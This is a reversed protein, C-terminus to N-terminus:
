IPRQMLVNGPQKYRCVLIDERMNSAIACGVENTRAWIVQTYHSVDRVDGTRSNDPFVGPKFHGKEAIWLGVM